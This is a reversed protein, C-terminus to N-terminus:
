RSQPKAITFLFRSGHPQNPEVWIKGGHNIVIRQCFSLGIGTGAVGTSEHVRVFPNFVQQRSESPIGLGNDEVVVRWCQEEHECAIQIQPTRSPDHYKIANGILNRLVQRIQVENGIITPLADHTVVASTQEIESKLLHLVGAMLTQLDIPEFQGGSHEVRSYDLLDTVLETMNAIATNADAIAELSDSDLTEAYDEHILSLCCSVINLPSRVEHAITHAFSKLEDNSRKLQDAYASLKQKNKKREIAYRISRLLIQSGIDTKVLFDDAGQQVLESAFDLDDLSTLVVTPLHPVAAIFRSLTESIASDPLSLDLLVADFPESSALEIAAALTQAQTIEIKSLKARKLHRQVLHSHTENDEVLLVSLSQKQPM